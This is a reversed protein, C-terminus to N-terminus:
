ARGGSASMVLQAITAYDPYEDERREIFGARQGMAQALMQQAQAQIQVTAPAGVEETWRQSAYQQRTTQSLGSTVGAQAASALDQKRQKDLQGLASTEFAGGPAYMAEIKEYIGMAQNYRDLNAARASQAQEELKNIFKDLNFQTRQQNWGVSSSVGSGMFGYSGVGGFDSPGVSGQFGSAKPTRSALKANAARNAAAREYAQKQRSEYDGTLGSFNFDSAKAM